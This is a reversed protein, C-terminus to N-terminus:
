LSNEMIIANLDIVGTSLSCKIHMILPQYLKDNLILEQVPHANCNSLTNLRLELSLSSITFFNLINYTSDYYLTLKYVNFVLNSGPSRPFKSKYANLRTYYM